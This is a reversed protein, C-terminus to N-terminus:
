KKMAESLFECFHIILVFAYLALGFAVIGIFPYVPIILTPSTQHSAQMQPVYLVTQWTVMIGVALSLLGTVCGAVGRAFKSLRSIFVDVVIHGKELGCQAMALGITIAMLFKVIEYSGLISFNITKRLTVDIATLLMMAVLSVLGINNCWFNIPRAVTYLKRLLEGLFNM